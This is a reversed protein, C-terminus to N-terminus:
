ADEISGFIEELVEVEDPIAETTTQLFIENQARAEAEADYLGVASTDFNSTSNVLGLETAPTPPLTPQMSGTAYSTNNRAYNNRVGKNNGGISASSLTESLENLRENGFDLTAKLSILDDICIKRLGEKSFLGKFDKIITQITSTTKAMLIM